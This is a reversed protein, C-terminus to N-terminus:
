EEFKFEWQCAIEDASERPPLKLPTAKLKPNFQQIGAQFGPPELQKCIYEVEAVNGQRELSQLVKCRIVTAIGHHKDKLECKIDMIGAFAPDVQLFKLFSAVDDGWINMAKRVRRTELECGGRKLWIEDSLERATEEGYREKVMGYWLGDVGAYLKGGAQWLQVLAEKSFDTMELDPMFEGSYDQLEAMNGEKLKDLGM